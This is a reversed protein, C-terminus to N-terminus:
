KVVPLLVYVGLVDPPLQPRIDHRVGRARSAARVRRHAELLSEGRQRALEDLDAQLDPLGELIRQVFQAAQQPAVNADPEAALLAEAEAAALWQPSRPSGAFAALQCDEALLPTEDAGRRTLIHYRLRLLLLTTAREVARTRIAGCRRAAGDRLPDLATDMVHRALGEVIPHAITEEYVRQEVGTREAVLRRIRRVRRCIADRRELLTEVPEGCVHAAHRWTDNIQRRIAHDARRIAAQATADNQRVALGQERCRRYALALIYDPDAALVRYHVCIDWSPEDSVLVLGNRDLIRGRVFPLSQSPRLLLHEAQRTLDDAQAWQLQILRAVGLLGAAALVLLFGRVRREFRGPEAHENKPSSDM